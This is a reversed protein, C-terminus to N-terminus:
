RRQSPITVKDITSGRKTCFYQMAEMPTEFEGIWSLFCAIVTATRGKGTLCHVVAVNDADAGLWSEISTWIKFLLGIYEVSTSM